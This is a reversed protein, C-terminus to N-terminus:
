VMNKWTIDCFVRNESFTKAWLSYAKVKDVVETQFM